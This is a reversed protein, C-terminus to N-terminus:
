IRLVTSRVCLLPGCGDPPPPTPIAFVFGGRVSRLRPPLLAFEPLAFVGPPPALLQSPRAFSAATRFQLVHDPDGARAPAAFLTLARAVAGHQHRVCKPEHHLILRASGPEAQVLAHHDPDLSGVVAAGAMGLPSSAGAYLVLACWGAFSWFARRNQRDSSKM